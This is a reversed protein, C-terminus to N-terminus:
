VRERCSARGIQLRPRLAELLAQADDRTIFNFETTNAVKPMEIVQTVNFPVYGTKLAFAFLSRVTSLARAQSAPALKLGQLHEMYHQVDQVTVARLPKGVVEMFRDAEHEYVRKTNPSRRAKQELWLAILHADSTAGSMNAPATPVIAPTNAGTVDLEKM